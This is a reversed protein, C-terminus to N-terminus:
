FYGPVAFFALLTVWREGELRYGRLLPNHRSPPPREKMKLDFGDVGLNLQV